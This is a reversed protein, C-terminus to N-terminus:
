SRPITRGLFPQLLLLHNTTLESQNFPNYSLMECSQISVKPPQLLREAEERTIKGHFWPMQNLSVETRRQLHSLPVLGKNEESDQAQYWEANDDGNDDIITLIDGRYFSLHETTTAQFDHRAIVESGASLGKTM